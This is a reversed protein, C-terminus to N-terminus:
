AVARYVERRALPEARFRGVRRSLGHGRARRGRSRRSGGQQLMKFLRHRAIHRLRRSWNEPLRVHPNWDNFASSNGAARRSPSTGNSRALSAKSTWFPEEEPLPTIDGNRLPTTVHATHAKLTDPNIIFSYLTNDHDDRLAYGVGDDVQFRATRDPRLRSLTPTLPKIENILSPLFNWLPRPKFDRDVLRVHGSGQQPTRDPLPVLLHRSQGRRPVHLDDRASRSRNPFAPRRHNRPVAAGGLRRRTPRRSRGLGVFRLAYPTFGKLPNPDGPKNAPGYPYVDFAIVDSKSHHLFAAGDINGILCCFPHSDPDYQRTIAALRGFKEFDTPEDILQVRWLAPHDKIPGLKKELVAHALKEDQPVGGRIM